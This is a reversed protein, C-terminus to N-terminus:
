NNTENSDMELATDFDIYKIHDNIQCKTVSYLEMNGLSNWKDLFKYRGVFGKTKWDTDYFRGWKGDFGLIFVKTAGLKKVLPLVCSSLKNELNYAQNNFLETGYILTDSDFRKTLLNKIEDINYQEVLKNLTTAPFNDFRHKVRDFKNSYQQWGNDIRSLWSVSGKNPNPLGGQFYNDFDTLHKANYIFDPVFANIDYEKNDNLYSLGDLASYLDVYSWYKPHLGFHEICHPFVKQFAFVNRGNLKKIQDKYKFLTTGPGVVWINM